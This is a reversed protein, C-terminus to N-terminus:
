ADLGREAKLYVEWATANINRLGRAADDTAERLEQAADQWGSKYAKKIRQQMAPTDGEGIRESELEAIRQNRKTLSVQLGEIHILLAERKRMDPVRPDQDTM